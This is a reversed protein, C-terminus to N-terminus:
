IFLHISSLHLSNLYDQMLLTPNTNSLYYTLKFINFRQISLKNLSKLSLM